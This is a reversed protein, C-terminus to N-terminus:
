EKNIKEALAQIRKVKVVAEKVLPSAAKYIEANPTTNQEGFIETITHSKKLIGHLIEEALKKTGPTFDKAGETDPTLHKAQADILKLKTDALGTKYQSTNIERLADIKRTILGLEVAEKNIEFIVPKDRSFDFTAGNISHNQKLKLAAVATLAVSAAAGLGLAIKKILGSRKKSVAEKQEQASEDVQETLDELSAIPASVFPVIPSAASTLTLLTELDGGEKLVSSFVEMQELERYQADCQALEVFLQSLSPAEELKPQVAISELPKKFM